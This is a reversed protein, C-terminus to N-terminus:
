DDNQKSCMPLYFVHSVGRIVDVVSGLADGGTGVGVVIVIVGEGCSRVDNAGVLFVGVKLADKELLEGGDQAIEVSSAKDM